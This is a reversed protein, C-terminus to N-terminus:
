ATLGDVEPSVTGSSLNAGVDSSHSSELNAPSQRGNERSAPAKRSSPHYFRCLERKCKGRLSDRCLTVHNDVVETHREPHVYRCTTDRSCKNHLFDRCVPLKDQDHFTRNHTHFVLPPPPSVSYLAAGHGSYFPVPSGRRRRDGPREEIRLRKAAQHEYARAAYGAYAANFPGGDYRDAVLPTPGVPLDRIRSRLHDPPHLYRCADRECKGRLFDQCVIVYEGDGGTPTHHAFRCDEADRACRGRVYDRCVEISPRTTAKMSLPAHVPLASGPLRAPGLFLNQPSRISDPLYGLQPASETGAADQLLGRLHPPPHFYRCVPGRICRDRLSDFCVTVVEGDLSVTPPPHAYRCDVHSRSCRGRVFDKCIPVTLSQRKRGLGDDDRERRRASRSGEMGPSGPGSQASHLSRPM